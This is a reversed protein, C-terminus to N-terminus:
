MFERTATPMAASRSEVVAVAATAWAAGVGTAVGAGL